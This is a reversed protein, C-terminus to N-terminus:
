LKTAESGKLRGVNQGGRPLIQPNAHRWLCGMPMSSAPNRDQALKM